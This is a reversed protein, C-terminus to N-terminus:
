GVTEVPLFVIPFLIWMPFHAPLWTLILESKRVTETKKRFTNGM